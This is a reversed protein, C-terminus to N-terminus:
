EELVRALLNLLTIYNKSCWTGLFLKLLFDLAHSEFKRRTSAAKRLSRRPRQFCLAGKELKQGKLKRCYIKCVRVFRAPTYETEGRKTQKREKEEERVTDAADCTLAEHQTQQL